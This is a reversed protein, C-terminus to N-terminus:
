SFDRPFPCQYSPANDEYRNCGATHNCSQSFIEKMTFLIPLGALPPIGGFRQLATSLYSRFRSFSIGFCVQDGDAWPEHCLVDSFTM